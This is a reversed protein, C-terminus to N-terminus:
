PLQVELCTSWGRPANCFRVTGGARTVISRVIALGLGTGRAFAEVEPDSIVKELKKYLTQAPDSVLPEFVLEWYQRPLGIGTDLFRMHLGSSVRRAALRVRRDRVSALSAKTANSLCNILLSTLAGPRMPRTVVNGPVDVQFAIDYREGLVKFVSVADEAAKKVPQARAGDERSVRAITGVLGILGRMGRTARSLSESAQELDGRMSASESLAAVQALSLAAVSSARLIAQAEHSFVFLLTATSALQELLESRALGARAHEAIEEAAVIVQRAEDQALTTAEAGAHLSAKITRLREDIVEEASLHGEQALHAEASRVKKESLKLKAKTYHLTMWQLTQQMLERLDRFAPGDTFGMRDTTPSLPGEPGQLLELRGILRQSRPHDLMPRHEFVKMKVALDQLDDTAFKTLRSAQVHELGLWDDGADGYPFVRSGNLYVKVGGRSRLFASVAARTAIARDSWMAARAPFWSLDLSLGRAITRLSAPIIVSYSAGDIFKANLHLNWATGQSNANARLRAWGANLLAETLSQPEDEQGPADTGIFVEIGPDPRFPKGRDIAVNGVLDALDRKLQVIDNGTWRKSLNSFTLELGTKGSTLADVRADFSLKELSEGTKLAAWGFDIRTRELRGGRKGVAVMGLHDSLRLVAFRGIGKSGTRPRGFVDSVPHEIKDSTAVRMWQHKVESFTMGTGDDRIVVRQESQTGKLREFRVEVRTADADYANKILEALAIHDKTVLRKGLEDLLQADVTFSVREEIM